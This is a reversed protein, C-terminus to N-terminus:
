ERLNKVLTNRIFWIWSSFFVIENEALIDTTENSDELIKLNYESNSEDQYM